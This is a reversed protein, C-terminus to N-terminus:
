KKRGINEHQSIHGVRMNSRYGIIYAMTIQCWYRQQRQTPEHNEGEDAGHCQYPNGMDAKIARYAIAQFIGSAKLDVM